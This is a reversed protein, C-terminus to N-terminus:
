KKLSKRAPFSQFFILFPSSFISDISFNVIRRIFKGADRYHRLHLVVNSDTFLRIAASQLVPRLDLSPNQNYLRPSPTQNFSRCPVTPPIRRQLLERASFHLFIPQSLTEPRVSTRSVGLELVLADIISGIVTIFDFVNWPDKFFNQQPHFPSCVPLSSNRNFFQLFITRFKKFKRLNEKAFTSFVKSRTLAISLDRISSKIPLNKM